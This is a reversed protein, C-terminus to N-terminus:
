GCRQALKLGVEGMQGCEHRFGGYQGGVWRAGVVRPQQTGVRGGCLADDRRRQHGHGPEALSEAALGLVGDEGVEVRQRHHELLYPPLPQHFCPSTLSPRPTLPAAPPPSQAPSRRRM